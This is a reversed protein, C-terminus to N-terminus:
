QFEEGVTGKCKYSHSIQELVQATRLHWPTGRLYIPDSVSTCYPASKQEAKTKSELRLDFCPPLCLLPM